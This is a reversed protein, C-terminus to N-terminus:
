AARICWKLNGPKFTEVKNGNRDVIVVVQDRLIETM